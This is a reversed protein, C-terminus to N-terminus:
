AAKDDCEAPVGLVTTDIRAANPFKDHLWKFRECFVKDPFWDFGRTCHHQAFAFDVVTNGAATAVKVSAVGSDLIWATGGMEWTQLVALTGYLDFGELAEDFRFGKHLNVLICCEDFCCAPHPFPHLDSTDFIMPIRTDHFRGCIRGKMDKGIIGAVVWSDPLLALQARIQATWVNRYSMDHHTLVAVDAGEKEAIGLLQNLGKTASEPSRIFNVEGEIESQKLAMDLRAPHNTICGFSLKV